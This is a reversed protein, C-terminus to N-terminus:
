SLIKKLEFLLNMAEIPTMTNIDCERIKEAVESDKSATIGSLLDFTTDLEKEKPKYAREGSEIGALIEKAREVFELGTITPIMGSSTRHFLKAGIEDEVRKISLSVNPQSIYLNTAAQSISGTNAVEIIQELQSLKM